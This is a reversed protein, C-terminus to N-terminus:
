EKEYEYEVLLKSLLPIINQTADITPGDWQARINGNDDVLVQIGELHRICDQKDTGYDLFFVMDYPVNHNRLWETKATRIRNHFNETKTCSLWSNIVIKWGQEQLKNLIHNFIKMNYIPKAIRYPTEDQLDDLYHKWGEVGYFDVFTGDMDLVLYKDM